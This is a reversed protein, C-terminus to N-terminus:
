KITLLLNALLYFEEADKNDLSIDIQKLMDRKAKQPHYEAETMIEEVEIITVQSM